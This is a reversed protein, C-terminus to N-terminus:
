ESNNAISEIWTVGTNIVAAEIPDNFEDSYWSAINRIAPVILHSADSGALELEPNDIEEADIQDAMRILVALSSDIGGTGIDDGLLNVNLDATWDNPPEPQEDITL